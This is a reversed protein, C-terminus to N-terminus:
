RTVEAFSASVCPIQGPPVPVRNIDYRYNVLAQDDGRLSFDVRDLALYCGSVAVATFGNATREGNLQCEGDRASVASGVEDGGDVELNVQGIACGACAGIFTGDACTIGGQILEGKWTGEILSDWGGSDGGCGTVILSLLVVVLWRWPM